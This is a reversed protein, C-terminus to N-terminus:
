IAWAFALWIVQLLFWNNKSFGRLNIFHSIHDTLFLPSQSYVGIWQRVLVWISGFFDYGM